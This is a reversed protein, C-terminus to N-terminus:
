LVALIDWSVGPHGTMQLMEDDSIAHVVLTGDKTVPASTISMTSGVKRFDWGQSKMRDLEEQSKTANFCSILWYTGKPVVNRLHSLPYEHDGVIIGGFPTGHVFLVQGQDTDYVIAENDIVAEEYATFTGAPVGKYTCGTFVGGVTLNGSARNVCEKYYPALVAELDPDYANAAKWGRVQARFAELAPGKYQSAQVQGQIGLRLIALAQARLLIFDHENMM